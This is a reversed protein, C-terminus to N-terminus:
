RPPLLDSFQQRLFHGTHMFDLSQQLGPGIRFFALGKQSFEVAEKPPSKIGEFGFPNDLRHSGFWAGDLLKSLDGL